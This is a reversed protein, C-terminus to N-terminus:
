RHNRLRDFADSILKLGRNIPHSVTGAAAGAITGAYKGFIAGPFLAMYMPFIDVVARGLHNTLGIHNNIATGIEYGGVAGAIAGVTPGFCYGWMAANTVKKTLETETPERTSM